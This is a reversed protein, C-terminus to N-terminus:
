FLLLLLFSSWEDVWYLVRSLLRTYVPRSFLLVDMSVFTLLFLFHICRHVRHVARVSFRLPITSNKKTSRVGTGLATTGPTSCLVVTLFPTQM